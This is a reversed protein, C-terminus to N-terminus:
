TLSRAPPLFGSGHIPNCVCVVRTSAAVHGLRYRSDGLSRAKSGYQHGHTGNVHERPAGEAITKKIENKNKGTSFKTPVDDTKVGEQAAGGVKGSPLGALMSGIAHQM